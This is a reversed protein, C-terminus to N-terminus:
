SVKRKVLPTKKVIQRTSKSEVILSFDLHSEGSDMEIYDNYYNYVRLFKLALWLSRTRVERIQKKSTSTRRSFYKLNERHKIPTLFTRICSNGPDRKGYM